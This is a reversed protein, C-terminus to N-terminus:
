KANEGQEIINFLELSLVAYVKSYDTSDTILVERNRTIHLAYVKGDIILGRKLTNDNLARKIALETM